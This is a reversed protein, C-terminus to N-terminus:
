KLDANAFKNIIRNIEKSKKNSYIKNELTDIWQIGQIANSLFIEDAGMLDERSIIGEEISLDLENVIASGVKESLIVRRMVGYMAGESLNPTILKNGKIIWLNSHTSEAIRNCDNYIIADDYGKEKAFLSALVYLLANSSKIRGLQNCPKKHEKFYSVKLGVSNLIYNNFELDSVEAIYSCSQVTPTYLGGDKRYISIRIRGGDLINNKLILDQLLVALTKEQFDSHAEIKLLKLSSIIRQYHYQFWVVKGNRVRITEFIGDGYRFARNEVGIGFESVFTGNHLYIAKGM